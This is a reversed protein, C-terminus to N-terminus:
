YITKGEKEAKKKEDKMLLFDYYYHCYMIALLVGFFLFGFM